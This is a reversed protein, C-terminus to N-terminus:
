LTSHPNNLYIFPSVSRSMVVIRQLRGYIDMLRLYISVFAGSSPVNAPQVPNPQDLYEDDCELPLAIDFSLRSPTLM